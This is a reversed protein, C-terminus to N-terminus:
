NGQELQRQEFLYDAGRQHGAGAGYRPRQPLERAVAFRVREFVNGGPQWNDVQGLSNLLNWAFPSHGGKGADFVPENGGSSMAVVAKQNLLKGPDAQGPTARIREGEALSGSYCSDSILAVQSAGIQQMLRAIDANSLWTEPKKADSDRLQWYGQGTSEILEGHGAYYILASDRPGLELALRNLAAVVASKSSNELVVTEYGLKSEFLRGLAQADGVANGLQPISADDYRNVGIVLAVKREIQPLSATQVRRRSALAPTSPPTQGLTPAAAAAVAAAQAAAPPTAAAAAAAPPAAPAPAAQAAAAPPAAAMGAQAQARLEATVLCGGAQAQAMSTCAQMDALSPDQELKTISEAFVTKKYRDRGDLLAQLDGRSLSGVRVSGFDAASGAPTTSGAAAGTAAGTAAGAAAPSATSRAVSIDALGSVAQTRPLTPVELSQVAAQVSVDARAGGDDVRAPVAQLATANGPAQAFVYNQARLGSGEIAYSGVRTVAEPVSFSATGTTADAQTDAGQFGKVTGTLGTPPAGVIRTAVDAVYLLQAPTIDARLAAPNLQYNGADAGALGLGTVLVTKATGANRDSFQASPTGTLGLQDGGVPTVFATGSLTANTTADYVKSAATLGGVSLLLRTIDAQLSVPSLQYNGADAGALGLGTLLVTKATGANRDTFQASATGSVGLLDGALPTVFATGVLTANTTADYVKSAATLGGLAVLRRTIDAQPGATGLQYNGADAGALGLGSLLVTKATGANKDSFRASPTGTLSLQDGALATVFATGSLTAGTTADYVKSAATLGGISLLLRTIDAQLSTPSLQYNGADAGSLGLGTLLVTKATGANKDSFQASPTGTLGLQDGALPTVFASGVLTANTTTDYVKSAATLGGIAVARRTIDATYSVSPADFVYNAALGGNSGNALTFQANGVAKGTGVNKDAFTGQGRVQVTESGVLGTIGGVAISAQTSADYVKNQAAAQTATLRAPTITASGTGSFTYGYVPKGNSDFMAFPDASTLSVTKGTGANKDAFAATAGSRLSGTDGNVGSASGGSLQAQTTGDYTKNLAFLNVGATQGASFVFGNGSDGAWDASSGVGYRKFDYALGGDQFSSSALVDSGWAIWRGNPTSLAGPNDNFFYEMAVPGNGSLVIADGSAGSVIATNNALEIERARLEIPGAADLRAADLSLNGPAIMALSGANARAILGRGAIENDLGLASVSIPGGYSDSYLLPVSGGYGDSYANILNVAAQYGLAEPDYINAGRLAMSAGNSVRLQASTATSSQLDVGAAVGESRGVVSMSATSDLAVPQVSLESRYIYVGKGTGRGDISLSHTAALSSVNISVGAGATSQGRMVIDAARYDGFNSMDIANGSARTANIELRGGAADLTGGFVTVGGPAAGSFSNGDATTGTGYGGLIVNGGGTRITSVSLSIGGSGGRGAFLSVPMRGGYTASDITAGTLTIDADAILTLSGPNVANTVISAGGMSINGAQTGAPGGTSVTVNTGANLAATLTNADIVANDANATFNADYGSGSVGNAITINYPDLLWQGAKGHAAGVDIALPRADLWGGSTEVFGGDGGQAGGRASLSGFARTASDSWLVIRGGDGQVTADAKIQADRGFYVADANPVSADKGQLGGGVLVEGGGSAGSADVRAHGFLGVERGLLKVQGGQGGASAASTSSGDALNLRGSAQLVIEGAPGASLGDAQVLGQQNVVAAHVDIRGGSARLTGLNLAEGQPATIRVSLHPAGTDVLELSEGAALLVQGGPAEILGENRVTAGLLVVRGGLTSRLEGQNVVAAGPNGAGFAYRGALWDQDNLRLTSTVLGAVDIRAGQGFLVGNPNLLWVKGNSSLQGLIQSPDNGTVRNLVQSAAGPQQFRVANQAGISFSNWNLITNATNTVTMNAGNVAIQAQGAAVVAGSPLVQAGAHPLTLLSGAALALALRHPRPAPGRPRTSPAHPKSSM